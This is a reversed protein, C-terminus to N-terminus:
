PCVVPSVGSRMRDLAVAALRVALADLLPATRPHVYAGIRDHCLENAVRGNETGGVWDGHERYFRVGVWSVVFPLSQSSTQWKDPMM